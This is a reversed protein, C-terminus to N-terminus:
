VPEQPLTGEGFYFPYVLNGRTNTHRIVYYVTILLVGDLKNNEEIVIDDVNIRTEWNIIATQIYDKLESKFTTNANQFVKPWLDCGYTPVMIRSGLETNFLIRLSEQIDKEGSVMIVSNDIRTFIPPFSWGTGLFDTNTEDQKLRTM